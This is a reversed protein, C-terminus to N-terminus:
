GGPFGHRSRDCPGCSVIRRRFLVAAPDRHDADGVREHRRKRLHAHLHGLRRWLGGAVRVIAYLLAVFLCLAVMVGVFGLEEGVIAFVFDTTSAPIYGSRKLPGQTFGTGWWGGSGIAIGSETAQYGAHLRDFQSSQGGAPMYDPNLFTIIRAQQHPALHRWIIPGLVGIVSNTAYVTIAEFLFPRWLLLLIFLVVMWASWLPTSWALLLSVVPSMLLVINPIPVAAWFLVGLLIGGFVIASGLDPQKLVLIAPVATLLIPQLLGRLSLPPEKHAAFWRALMLITALKAVEVPQVGFLWSKSSAADGHGNGLVLTVALTALSLGYLWPTAWEILRFSTRYVAYGCASAFVLWIVQKLWRWKLQGLGHSVPVFDNQGASYLVLLGFIALLVVVLLLTRDVGRNV